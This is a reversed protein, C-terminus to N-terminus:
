KALSLLDCMHADHISVRNGGRALVELEEIGNRLRTENVFALNGPLALVRGYIDAHQGPVTRYEPVVTDDGMAANSAFYGGLELRCWRVLEKDGAREALRLAKGLSASLRGKDLNSLIGDVVKM